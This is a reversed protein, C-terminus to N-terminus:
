GCLPSSQIMYLSKPRSGFTPRDTSLPPTACIYPRSLTVPSYSLPSVNGQTPAGVPSDPVAYSHWDFQSGSTLLPAGPVHSPTLPALPGHNFASAFASTRSLSPSAPGGLQPTSPPSFGQQRDRPSASLLPSSFRLPRLAPSINTPSCSLNPLTDALPWPADRTSSDWSRQHRLRTSSALLSPTRPVDIPTLGFAAQTPTISNREQGLGLALRFVMGAGSGASSLEELRPSPTRGLSDFGASGPGVGLGPGAEPPSEFRMKQLSLLARTSLKGKQARRTALGPSYKTPSISSLSDGDSPCEAQGRPPTSPTVELLSPKKFTSYEPTWCPAVGAESFIPGVLEDHDPDTSPRRISVTPPTMHAIDGLIPSQPPTVAEDLLPDITGDSSVSLNRVGGELAPLDHDDDQEEASGPPHHPDIFARLTEPAASSPVSISNSQQGSLQTLGLALTADKITSSSLTPLKPSMSSSKTSGCSFRSTQATRAFWRLVQTAPHSSTRLRRRM